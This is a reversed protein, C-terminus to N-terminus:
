GSQHQSREPADISPDARAALRVRARDGAARTKFFLILAMLAAFAVGEFITTAGFHLRGGTLGDTVFWLLTYIPVGLVFYKGSQTVIDRVSRAALEVDQAPDPPEEIFGFYVGVRHWFSEAMM